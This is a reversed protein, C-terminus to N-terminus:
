VEVSSNQNEKNNLNRKISLFNQSDKIGGGGGAARTAAGKM